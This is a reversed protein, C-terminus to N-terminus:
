CGGASPLGCGRAAAVAMLRLARLWGRLAHPPPAHCTLEAPEAGAQLSFWGTQTAVQAQGASLRAGLRLVTEGLWRPPEILTLHGRQMQMTTGARLQVTLLQGAALTLRQPSSAEFRTMTKEL